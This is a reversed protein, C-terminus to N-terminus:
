TKKVAVNDILRTGGIRAAVLLRLPEAKTGEAKALTDANRAELYDLQFGSSRITARGRELVPEITAGKAIEKAAGSLVRHLVPAIKRHEPSLYINRSSLALGDKERVIPAGLIKIPLDLDRAMRKIVLLQQYDKEGFIAVDPMAEILLKAVITAVGGFFHPRFDTELGLAPGELTIKTTFGEPYIEKVAPAFVLDTKEKTLLALDAKWTRPYRGFDENPAFQAPNVFITAVVKDAKRHGLRVLSLHGAHLAGMTPVLAITNGKRRWASIQTRQANITRAIKPAPM